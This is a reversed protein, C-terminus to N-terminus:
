SETAHSHLASGRDMSCDMELRELERLIDEEELPASRLDEGQARARLLVSITPSVKQDTVSARQRRDIAESIQELFENLAAPACARLAVRVRECALGREFNRWCHDYELDALEARLKHVRAGLPRLEAAISDAQQRHECTAAASQAHLERLRACLDERTSLPEHAETTVVMSTSRVSWRSRLRDVWARIRKSM